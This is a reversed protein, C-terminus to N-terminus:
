ISQNISEEIGLLYIEVVANASGLPEIAM